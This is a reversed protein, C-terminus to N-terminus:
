LPKVQAPIGCNPCKPWKSLYQEMQEPTKDAGRDCTGCFVRAGNPWALVGITLKQKRSIEAFSELRNTRM